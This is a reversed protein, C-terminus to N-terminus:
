HRSKEGTCQAELSFETFGHLCRARTVGIEGWDESDYGSSLAISYRKALFQGPTSGMEKYGLAFIIVSM